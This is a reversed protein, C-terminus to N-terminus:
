VYMVASCTAALRSGQVLRIDSLEVQTQNGSPPRGDVLATAAVAQALLGMRYTSVDEPWEMQILIQVLTGSNEDSGNQNWEEGFLPQGTKEFTVNNIFQLVRAFEKAYRDRTQQMINTMSYRPGVASVIADQEDSTNALLNAATLGGAVGPHFMKGQEACILGFDILSRSASILTEESAFLESTGTLWDYWQKAGETCITAYWAKTVWWSQKMYLDTSSNAASIAADSLM